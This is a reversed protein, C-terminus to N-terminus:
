RVWGWSVCLHEPHHGHSRSSCQSQYESNTGHWLNSLHPSSIWKLFCLLFSPLLSTSPSHKSEFGPNSSPGLSDLESLSCSLVKTDKGGPLRISSVRSGRGATGVIRGLGSRLFPFCDETSTQPLIFSFSCFSGFPSYAM